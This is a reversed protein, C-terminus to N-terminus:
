LPRPGQGAAIDYDGLLHCPSGLELHLQPPPIQRRRDRRLHENERGRGPALADLEDACGLRRLLGPLLYSMSPVRFTPQSEAAASPKAARSIAPSTRATTPLGSVGM